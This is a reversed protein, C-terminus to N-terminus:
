THPKFGLMRAIGLSIDRTPLGAEQEKRLKQRMSLADQWAGKTHIMTTSMGLGSRWDFFLLVYAQIRSRYM